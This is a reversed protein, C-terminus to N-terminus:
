GALIELTRTKDLGLLHDVLARRHRLDVLINPFEQVLDALAEKSTNGCSKRCSATSEALVRFLEEDHVGTARILHRLEDREAQQWQQRSFRRVYALLLDGAGGGGAVTRAGEEHGETTHTRAARAERAEDIKLVLSAAAQCRGEAHAVCSRLRSASQALLHGIEVRLDAVEEEQHPQDAQRVHEVFKEAEVLTEGASRAMESVIDAARHSAAAEFAIERAVTAYCTTTSTTGIDHEGLVDTSQELLRESVVRLLTVFDGVAELMVRGLSVAHSVNEAAGRSVAVCISELFSALDALRSVLLTTPEESPPRSRSAKSAANQAAADGDEPHAEESHAHKTEDQAAATRPPRPSSSPVLPVVVDRLTVFAAHLEHFAENSGGKDPHCQLCRSRYAGM